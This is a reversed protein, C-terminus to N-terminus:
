GIRVATKVQPGPLALALTNQGGGMLERFHVNHIKMFLFEASIESETLVIFSSLIVSFTRQQQDVSYVFYASFSICM